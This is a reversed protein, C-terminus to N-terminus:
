TERLLVARCHSGLWLQSEEVVYAVGAFEVQDAQRDDHAAALPNADGSVLSGAAGGITLPEGNLLLAEGRLTLIEGDALRREIGVPVFAKIRESTQVGGETDIDELTVPQISAPLATRVVPGPEFEGFENTRGPGQRRRIIERTFRRLAPRRM